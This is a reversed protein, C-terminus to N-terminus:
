GTNAVGAADLFQQIRTQGKKYEKKLRSTSRTPQQLLPLSTLLEMLYQVGRTVSAPYSVSASNM